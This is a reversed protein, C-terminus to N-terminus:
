GPPQTRECAAFYQLNVRHFLEISSGVVSGSAVVEPAYLGDCDVQTSDVALPTTRLVIVHDPVLNM